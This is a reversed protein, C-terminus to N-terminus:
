ASIKMYILLFVINTIEMYIRWNIELSYGTKHHSVM